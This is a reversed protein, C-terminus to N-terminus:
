EESNVFVEVVASDGVLQQVVEEITASMEDNVVPSLNEDDKSIRSIQIAITESVIKAM